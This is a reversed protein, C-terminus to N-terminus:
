YSSPLEEGYMIISERKIFIKEDLALETKTIGTLIGSATNNSLLQFEYRKGIELFSDKIKKGGKAKKVKKVKVADKKHRGM